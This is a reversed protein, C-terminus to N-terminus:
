MILLKKKIVEFIDQNETLFELLKERENEGPTVRCIEDGQTQGEGKFKWVPRGGPKYCVIVKNDIAQQIVADQTTKPKFKHHELFLDMNASTSTAFDCLTNRLQPDTLKEVNILGMARGIVCMKEFDIANYITNEVQIKKKRFEAKQIADFTPMLVRYDKTTNKSNQRMDDGKLYPITECYPSIYVIFFLLGMDASDSNFNWDGQFNKRRPAFVADDGKGTKKEFYTWVEDTGDFLIRETMPLEIGKAFEKRRRDDPDSTIRSETYTIRIDGNTLEKLRKIAENIKKAYPNNKDNLNVQVGNVAIM